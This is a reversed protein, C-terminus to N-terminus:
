LQSTSGRPIDPPASPVLRTARRGTKIDDCAQLWMKTLMEHQRPQYRGQLADLLREVQHSAAELMGVDQHRLAFKCINMVVNFEPFCPLDALTPKAGHRSAAERDVRAITKLRQKCVELLLDPDARFTLYQVHGVELEVQFDLSPMHEFGLRRALRASRINSTRCQVNVYDPRIDRRSQLRMLAIFASCVARTAAGTGQGLPTAMYSLNIGLAKTGRDVVMDATAAALLEGTEPDSAVCCKGLSGVFHWGTKQMIRSIDPGDFDYRAEHGQPWTQIVSNIGKWGNGMMLKFEAMANM